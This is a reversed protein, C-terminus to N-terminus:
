VGRKIGARIMGYVILSPIVTLALLCVSIAGAMGYDGVSIFDGVWMVLTKTSGDPAGNTLLRPVDFMQLGGILSIMASYIIVPIIDPFTIKCFMGWSGAGEIAAAEYLCSDISSISAILLVATGGFSALCSVMAVAARATWANELVGGTSGFLAFFLTGFAAAMIIGPLFVALRFFRRGRIKLRVGTYVVAVLVSLILQPVFGMVWMILTNKTHELFASGGSNFGAAPDFLAKYNGVGAAGSRMIEAKDPDFEYELFSCVITSVLPFLAFLIFVIFFPTIFIYGWKAYSLSNHKKKM